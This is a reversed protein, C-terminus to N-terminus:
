WPLYFLSSSMEEALTHFHSLENEKCEGIIQELRLWVESNKIESILVSELTNPISHSYFISTDDAFIVVRNIVVPMPSKNKNEVNMIVKVYLLVPISM